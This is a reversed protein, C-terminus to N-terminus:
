KGQKPQTPKPDTKTSDDAKDSEKESEKEPEAEDAKEDKEPPDYSETEDYWTLGAEEEVKRLRKDFERSKKMLYDEEWSM